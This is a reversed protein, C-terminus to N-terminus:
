IFGSAATSLKLFIWIENEMNSDFAIQKLEFFKLHRFIFHIHAPSLVSPFASPHSMYYINKQKYGGIESPLLPQRRNLGTMEGPQYLPHSVSLRLMGFAAAGPPLDSSGQLAGTCWSSPGAVRRPFPCCHM